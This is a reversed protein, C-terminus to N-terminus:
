KDYKEICEHIIEEDSRMPVDRDGIKMTKEHGKGLALILTKGDIKEFATRIAEQRNEIYTFPTGEREVYYAIEKSIDKVNELGPDDMTIPLACTQVGTVNRDRIGDK